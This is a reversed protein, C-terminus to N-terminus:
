LPFNTATVGSFLSLLTLKILVTVDELFMGLCVSERLVLSELLGKNVEVPTLVVVLAPPDFGKNVEIPTLVVVLALPDFGVPLVKVITPFLHGKVLIVEVLITGGLSVVIEGTIVSVESSLAYQLLGFADLDIPELLLDLITFDLVELVLSGLLDQPDM